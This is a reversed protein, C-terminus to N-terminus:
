MLIEIYIIFNLYIIGISYINTKAYNLKVM